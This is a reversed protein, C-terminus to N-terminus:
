RARAPDVYVDDVQLGPTHATIRLRVSAVDGDALGLVSSLRMPLSPAWRAFGLVGGVVRRREAGAADTWLLQVTGADVRGDGRVLFRFTPHDVTACFAPSTASGGREFALAGNKVSAGDLEWGAGGAAFDGDPLLQYDAADGHDAFWRGVPGLTPCEDPAAQRVAASAPSPAIFAALAVATGTITALRRLMAPSPPKLGEIEWDATRRAV